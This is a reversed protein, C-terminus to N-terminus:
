ATCGEGVFKLAVDPLIDLYNLKCVSMTKGVCVPQTMWMRTLAYTDGAVETM